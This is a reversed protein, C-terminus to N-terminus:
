HMCVEQGIADAWIHADFKCDTTLANMGLFLTINFQYWNHQFLVPTLSVALTFTQCDASCLTFVAGRNIYRCM